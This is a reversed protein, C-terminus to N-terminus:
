RTGKDVPVGAVVLQQGPAEPESREEQGTDHVPRCWPSDGEVQPMLAPSDVLPRYVEKGTRPELEGLYTFLMGYQLMVAAGGQTYTIRDENGWPM